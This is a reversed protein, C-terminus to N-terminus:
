GSCVQKSEMDPSAITLFCPIFFHRFSNRSHLHHLFPNLTVPKGRTRLAPKIIWSACCVMLYMWGTLSGMCIFQIGMPFLSPCQLNKKLLDSLVCVRNITNWFKLSSSLLCM